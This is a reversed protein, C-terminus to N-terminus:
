AGFTSGEAIALNLQTALLSVKGKEKEALMKVEDTVRDYLGWAGSMPCKMPIWREWVIEAGCERCEKIEPM